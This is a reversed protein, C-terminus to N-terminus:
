EWDRFGVRGGGGEVGLLMNSNMRRARQAERRDRGM